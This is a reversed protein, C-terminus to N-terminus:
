GADGERRREKGGDGAGVPIGILEPLDRTRPRNRRRWRVITIGLLVLAAWIGVLFVGFWWPLHHPLPLEEAVLVSALSAGHL